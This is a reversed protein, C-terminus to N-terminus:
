GNLRGTRLWRDLPGKDDEHSQPQLQEQKHEEVRHANQKFFSDLWTPKQPEAIVINGKNDVFGHPGKKCVDGCNDKYFEEGNVRFFCGRAVQKKIKGLM